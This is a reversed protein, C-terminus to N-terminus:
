SIFGGICAIRDELEKMPERRVVRLFIGLSTFRVGPRREDFHNKFVVPVNVTRM